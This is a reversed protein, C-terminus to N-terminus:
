AHAKRNPATRRHRSPIAMLAIAGTVMVFSTLLLAARGANGSDGPLVSLQPRAILPHADEVLPDPRLVPFLDASLSMARAAPTDQFFALEPHSDTLTNYLDDIKYTVDGVGDGNADYGAFDSWYNGVGNLSWENGSISGTGSFGVQEGNDIFANESFFNRKVSPQLLVGTRNYAILNHSTYGFEDHAYPTNDYYIGIRNGVMRNGEIAVRDMDKLGLGYGSPGFNEAMVNNRVTVDRSYMMFAGVSNETLTNGEVIAGDSYMFHLGYRGGSIQNNRVEVEDTFWFVTDRGGEVINDQVVSREAEWLRIGDGRNAIFVDKAGFTNGEVLSDPAARLFVGFLVDEFQNNRITARKGTLSVGADERDLSAGSAKIIFGDVTVDDAEVLIVSDEGRADIVPMGEGILTLPKKITIGGEYVPQDLVLVDGPEAADILSQLDIPSSDAGLAAPAFVGASILVLAFLFRYM